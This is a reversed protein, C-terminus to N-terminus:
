EGVGDDGEVLDAVRAPGARGRGHSCCQQSLQARRMELHLPGPLAAEHLDRADERVDLRDATQAEAASGPVAARDLLGACERDACAALAHLLHREGQAVLEAAHPQLRKAYALDTVSRTTRSSRM